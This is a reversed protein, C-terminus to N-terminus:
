KLRKQKCEKVIKAVKAVAKGLFYCYNEQEEFDDDDFKGTYHLSDFEYAFAAHGCEHALIEDDVDALNLYMTGLMNSYGIGPINHNVIGPTPRFLGATRPSTNNVGGEKKVDAALASLMEKRTKYVALRFTVDYLDFPKIEFNKM